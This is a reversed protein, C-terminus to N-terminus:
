VLHMADGQLLFLQTKANFHLAQWMIEQVERKQPPDM